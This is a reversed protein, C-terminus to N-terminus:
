VAGKAAEILTSGGSGADIGEETKDTNTEEAEKTFFEDIGGGAAGNNVLKLGMFWAGASANHTLTHIWYNSDFIGVGGLEIVSGPFLEPIAFASISVNIGGQFALVDRYAQCIDQPGQPDRASVNLFHGTRQSGSTSALKAIYGDLNKEVADPIKGEGLVAETATASTADYELLEKTAPDYDRTTTRISGGPIYVSIPDVEFEWFPFVTKFDPNGRVMFKYAPPEKLSDKRKKIFLCSKGEKSPALYADCGAVRVMKQIFLWDSLNGQSIRQRPAELPHAAGLGGPAGFGVAAAAAAIFGGNGENGIVVEWGHNEAIEEIIEKYTSGEYTKASEGQLAATGGGDGNLTATLGEDGTLRLSPKQGMSTFWPTFRGLKPYGIQVEYINGVRFLGTALLRLGTEFPATISITTKAVLGLCLEVSVSEVIPLDMGMLESTGSNPGSGGMGLANDLSGLASDVMSGIGGDGKEVKRMWLPIRVGDSPNTVFVSIQFGSPDLAQNEGIGLVM